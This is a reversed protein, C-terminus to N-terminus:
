EQMSRPRRNESQLPSVPPIDRALSVESRLDFETARRAIEVGEVALSAAASCSGARIFVIRGERITAILGRIDFSAELTLNITGLLAGDLLVDVDPEQISSIHHTALVVQEQAGPSGATRDAADILLWHKRWATGILTVLDSDIVELLVRTFEQAVFSRGVQRLLGIKEYLPDLYQEVSLQEEPPLADASDFLLDRVTMRSAATTATM